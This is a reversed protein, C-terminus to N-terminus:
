TDKSDQALALLIMQHTFRSRTPQSQLHSSSALVFKTTYYKRHNPNKRPIIEIILIKDQLLKM